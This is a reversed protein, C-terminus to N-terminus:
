AAAPLALVRNRGSADTGYPERLAARWPDVYAVSSCTPALRASTTRVRINMVSMPPQTSAPRARVVLKKASMRVAVDIRFTLASM